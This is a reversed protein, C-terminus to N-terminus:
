PASIEAKAPCVPSNRNVAFTNGAPDRPRANISPIAKEGTPMGSGFEVFKIQTPRNLKTQCQRLPRELQNGTGKNLHGDRGLIEAIRIDLVEDSADGAPLFRLFIEFLGPLKVGYGKSGGRGARVNKARAPRDDIFRRDNM